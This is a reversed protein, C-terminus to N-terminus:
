LRRLWRCFSSRPPVAVSFYTLTPSISARVSYDSLLSLLLKVVGSSGIVPALAAGSRIATPLPHILTSFCSCCIGIRYVYISVSGCM